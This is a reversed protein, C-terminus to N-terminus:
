EGRVRSVLLALGGAILILPWLQQFNLWAFIRLTSL